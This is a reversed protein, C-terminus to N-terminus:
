PAMKVSGASLRLPPLGAGVIGRRAPRCRLAGRRVPDAAGRGGGGPPEPAPAAGWGGGGGATPHQAQPLPCAPDLPDRADQALAATVLGLDGSHPRHHM